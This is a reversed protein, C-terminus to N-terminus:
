LLCHAPYGSRESRSRSVLCQKLWAVNCVNDVQKLWAPLQKRNDRDEVLVYDYEDADSRSGLRTVVEVKIAGM